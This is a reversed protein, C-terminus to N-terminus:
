KSNQCSAPTQWSSHPNVQPSQAVLEINGNGDVVWGTAEVIQTTAAAVKTTNSVATPQPSITTKASNAPKPKLRVWASLTSTDQLPETPSMPLGGRGTSVFTSQFQRSGPTCATSIQQSVDVLNTPLEILGNTPDIDPTTIEVNGRLQRNVGTATIDSTNPSPVDRFQIGFIGKANIEVNGGRSNTSNATINSDEFGALINTNINIDGGIVNEGKADTTINSSHLLILDRSRINITAQPKNPDTNISRTDASITANNDLRISRAKANINGAVGTGQSTANILAGENISLRQTTVNINGGSGTSNVNTNAFIGSVAGQGRVFRRGILALREPFTPDSGSITISDTANVSIEGANGRDSSTTVIQGGDRVELTSVNIKINGGNGQGSTNAGIIAGNNVNLSNATIKIEGGNGTSGQEISSFANSYRENASSDFSVAGTANITVSGANGEGVSSVLISAGNTVALSGTNIIIEGGNGRAFEFTASGVGSADGNNSAVGDLIVKNANITISGANGRTHTHAIIAAGDLVSVNPANIAIKGGNGVGGAFTQSGVGSNIGSISIRDVATMEINGANGQGTTHAVITAGNSLSIKPANMTIAGGNGVAGPFVQSGVGTGVGNISIDETATMQISGANGQGETHAVVTAGNSLSLKPANIAIKGGNGTGVLNASIASGRTSGADDLSVANDANIIINGANGQAYSNTSLVAGNSLFLSRGTININGGNGIGGVENAIIGNDVSIIGSANLTIDAAQTGLFQLGTDIGAKINSGSHIDINNANIAISGKGDGNVAINAGDTLRINQFNTIGQYGLLWGPNTSTLSVLSNGTVSGLEIRGNATKLTASGLSVDGGVLALTQNPQVRLESITDTIPDQFDRIQESDGIVEIKGPNSGFQLGIPVNITLLPTSQTTTSFEFGDGFKLSSATSAVFSGGIDLRANQGFVIGNPNILFLNATGNSKILGDINSISKGTVRTLINQIDLANNFFATEGSPVSFESFSHFLNAGRTTGGSIIRTNGELKVNSNNPLTGDPTIQAVSSNAYLLVIASGIAIGLGQWWYFRISVGSM